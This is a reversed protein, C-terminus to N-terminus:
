YNILIEKSFPSENGDVFVAKIRYIYITNILLQTDIFQNSKDKQLTTAPNLTKYLRLPKGQEAKYILYSDVKPINYAWKIVVALNERDATAKMNIIAPKLGLDLRKATFPKSDSTLNSDDVARIKYVYTQKLEATADNFTHTTDKFSAIPKWNEEGKPTRYVEHAVVDNSSSIYWALYIGDTQNKVEYLSPPMPPVIDPRKLKLPQSFESPNYRKDVAVLKYFVSKTLTKLEITDTFANIKVAKRTIQSFEGDIVNGRYVRYGALDKESNAKWSLKVLGTKDITGKLEIPPAPPISDILQAFIGYSVKSIGEQGYARIRYYNSGLPQDDIYEFTSSSIIKQNIKKFGKEVNNSRELDYGLIFAPQEPMKWSVKVTKGIVDAKEMVPSAELQHDTIVSITDSVPGTEGFPSIGKVRYFIKHNLTSLTDATLARRRVKGDDETNVVPEDSIPVFNKGGDESREVMFTTYIGKTVEQNWSITAGKKQPEVKVDYPKPLPSFDSFGTFVFGTDIRVMKDTVAPYIRYLYKENQKVNKDVYALGMAKAVHYDQDASFLAFSFRSENERARNIMQSIGGKNDQSVEFSEGYLAQAAISGYKNEQDVMTKWSDMPWPKLAVPTLLISEPKPLLKGNRTITFRKIQYGTKNLSHWAQASAPAWRLMISDKAPRSLVAIKITKVKQQAKLSFASFLFILLSFQFLLKSLGIKISPIVYKINSVMKNDLKM